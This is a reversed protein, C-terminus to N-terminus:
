DLLDDLKRAGHFVRLVHIAEPLVDYYILYNGEVIRRTNEGFQPQAEGLLPFERLLEVRNNIRELLRTAAAVNDLAVYRWVAILDNESQASRIIRHM